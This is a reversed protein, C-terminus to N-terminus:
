SKDFLNSLSIESLFFRQLAIFLILIPITMIVASAM